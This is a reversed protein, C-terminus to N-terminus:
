ASSKIVGTIASKDFEIKVNDDVRLVITKDKILAVTGHIGSATVVEDNKKLANLMKGHKSQDDRQPKILLFYYFIFFVLIYPVLQILPNAAAQEPPM